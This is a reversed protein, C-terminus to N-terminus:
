PRQALKHGLGRITTLELKCDPDSDIWRRFKVMFNDISRESPFADPGWIEDLMENREVAKGLNTILLQLVGNEKLSLNSLQGHGDELEFRRPWFKLRGFQYLEPRGGRQGLTRMAMQLRLILEKLQFPKPIYDQAGIELGALRTEPDSQASLFFLIFDKSKKRFERALELGTGDPLGIDMLIIQPSHASFMHQAKACDTAWFVQHGQGLFYDRLTEGLNREDEVILIVPTM